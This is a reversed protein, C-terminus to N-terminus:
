RDSPRASSSRRGNESEPGGRRDSHESRDRAWRQVAERVPLGPLASGGVRVERRRGPYAFVRSVARRRSACVSDVPVLRDPVGARYPDIFSCFFYPLVSLDVATGLVTGQIGAPCYGVVERVHCFGLLTTPASM